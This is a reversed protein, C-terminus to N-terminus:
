GVGEGEKGPGELSNEQQVTAELEEQERGMGQATTYTCRLQRDWWRQCPLLRWEQTVTRLFEQSKGSKLVGRTQAAAHIEM